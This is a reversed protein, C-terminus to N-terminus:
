DVQTKAMASAAQRKGGTFAKFPLFMSTRQRYEEYASGFQAVM